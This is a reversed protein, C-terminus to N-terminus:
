LKVCSMGFYLNNTLNFGLTVCSLRSYIAFPILAYKLSWIVMRRSKFSAIVETLADNNINVIKTPITPNIASVSANKISRTEVVWFTRSFTQSYPHKLAIPYVFICPILDKIYSCYETIILLKIRPVKTPTMTALM